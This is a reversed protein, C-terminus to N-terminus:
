LGARGRDGVFLADRAPAPRHGGHQGARAYRLDLRADLRRSSRLPQVHGAHSRGRKRVRRPFCRLLPWRDRLASQRQVQHRRGREYVPLDAYESHNPHQAHANDASVLFSRALMMQLEQEDKGLCLAIRRLTDRLFTSGAGQKTSSGVEENDFICCVAINGSEKAALFGELCGCACELDDLKPSLIYEENEGLLTGEGRCYLFLDSGLIDNEAVDAAKAVIPLIGGSDKGGLLPLTDINALYKMGDNATRNMHIAVNPIVLLDRDVSVLKEVIEGNARVFVRGAVSLPRDFWTSMLMGGYKETSLQVYHASRRDPHEKLRFAPSDSHAAAMAFGGDIMEPVRFAITSSGNRRVFYKGSPAVEWRERESLETYGNALLKQRINETVHYCTPSNKIFHLLERAPAHQM